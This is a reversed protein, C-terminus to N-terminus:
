KKLLASSNTKKMPQGGLRIASALAALPDQGGDGVKQGVPRNPQSQKTAPRKTEQPTMTKSISEYSSVFEKITKFFAETEVLKAKQLPIGFFVMLNIFEEMTTQVKEKLSSLKAEANTISQYISTNFKVLSANDSDPLITAAVFKANIIEKELIALDKKIEEASVRSGHEMESLESGLNKVESPFKISSLKIVYDMLSIKNSSDKISTLKNLVELNFGDAQGKNSSGNLYNGVTLVISLISRFAGSSKVQKLAISLATISKETNKELDPFELQFAFCKLRADLYPINALSLLIKEPKDLLEQDEVTKILNIEEDTPLKNLLSKVSDISM